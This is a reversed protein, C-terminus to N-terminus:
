SLVLHRESVHEFDECRLQEGEEAGSSACRGHGFVERLRQLALKHSAESRNQPPVVGLICGFRDHDLDSLQLQIPLAAEEPAAILLNVKRGFFKIEEREHHPVYANEQRM